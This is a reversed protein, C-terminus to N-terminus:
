SSRPGLEVAHGTIWLSALWATIGTKHIQHATKQHSRAEFCSAHKQTTNINGNIDLYPLRM